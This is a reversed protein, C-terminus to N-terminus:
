LSFGVGSHDTIAFSLRIFIASTSTMLVGIALILGVQWGLPKKIM